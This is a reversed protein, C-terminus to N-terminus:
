IIDKYSRGYSCFVKDFGIYDCLFEGFNETKHYQLKANNYIIIDETPQDLCTIALQRKINMGFGYMLDQTISKKLLDIDLPAFRLSGQFENQINTPDYIREYIKGSITGYLPGAGHRTTYCRTVYTIHIKDSYYDGILSIVNKIGTNSRTLHPFYEMRNQDLLLGQAGECVIHKYSHIIAQNLVFVYEKFELLINIFNDIIDNNLFVEKFKNPISNYDINLQQLRFPIYQDRILILKDKLGKLNFLCTIPTAFINGFEHRQVTENIGLGCSGHRNDGRLIETLHNIAVDYPTTIKANPDIYVTINSILEKLINREKLFVYPNVIFDSTLYTDAGSITGASFHHFIHEKKDPTVVTHGAQAGGNFRVGLVSDFKNTFYDTFLGKGEDGYNAGIIIDITNM